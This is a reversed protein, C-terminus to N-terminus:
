ADTKITDNVLDENRCTIVVTCGLEALRLATYYGIGSNAGTIVAVKGRLILGKTALHKVNPGAAIKRQVWMWVAVAAPPLWRHQRMVKPALYCASAAVGLALVSFGTAYTESMLGSKMRVIFTERKGLFLLTPLM